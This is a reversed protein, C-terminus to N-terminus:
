ITTKNKTNNRKKIRLYIEQIKEDDIKHQQIENKTVKIIDGININTFDIIM